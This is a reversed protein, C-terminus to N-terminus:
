TMGAVIEAALIHKCKVGRKSYDPCSCAMATIDVKYEKSGSQSPVIYVGNGAPKVYPVLKQAKELRGADPIAAKAYAKRSLADAEKNEERPVWRFSLKKFNAALKKMKRYLPVLRPSNVSYTGRLQYICLQSDSRLEIDENSFGNALLWELAKIIATYEAVNNTAHPGSCVVGYGEGLKEQGKYVVWGYCATGGPNIPECLGDCNVVIM